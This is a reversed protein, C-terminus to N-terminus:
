FQYMAYTVSLSDILENNSYITVYTRFLLSANSVRSETLITKVRNGRSFVPPRKTSPIKLHM